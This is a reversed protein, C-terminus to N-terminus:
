ESTTNCIVSADENHNCNHNGVGAHPCDILRQETGSCLVGDLLIAGSGQGFHAEQHAMAGILFM